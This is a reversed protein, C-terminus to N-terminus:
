SRGRLKTRTTTMDGRPAVAASKPDAYCSALDKATATLPRNLLLTLSCRENTIGTFAQAATITPVVWGDTEGYFPFLSRGLGDERPTPTRGSTMAATVIQTKTPTHKHTQREATYTHLLVQDCLAQKQARRQPVRYMDLSSPGRANTSIDAHAFLCCVRAGMPLVWSIRLM